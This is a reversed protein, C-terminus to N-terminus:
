KLRHRWAKLIQMETQTMVSDVDPADPISEDFAKHVLPVITFAIKEAKSDVTLM